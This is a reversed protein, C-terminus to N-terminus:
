PLRCARRSMNLGELDSPGSKEPGTERLGELLMEPSIGKTRKVPGALIASSRHLM